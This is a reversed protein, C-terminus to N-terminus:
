KQPKCKTIAADVDCIAIAMDEFEPPTDMTGLFVKACKVLMKQTTRCAELLDDRQQEIEQAKWGYGYLIDKDKGVVCRDVTNWFRKSSEGSFIKESM